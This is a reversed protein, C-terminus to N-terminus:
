NKCSRSMSRCPGDISLAWCGAQTGGNLTVCIALDFKFPPVDAIITASTPQAEMEQTNLMVGGMLALGFIGVLFQKVLKKFNMKKM